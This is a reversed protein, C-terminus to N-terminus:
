GDDPRVFATRGGGLDEKGPPAVKVGPPGGIRLLEPRGRVPGFRVIVGDTVIVGVVAGGAPTLGRLTLRLLTNFWNLFNLLSQM